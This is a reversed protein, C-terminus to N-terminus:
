FSALLLSISGDLSRTSDFRDLNAMPRRIMHLVTTLLPGYASIDKM